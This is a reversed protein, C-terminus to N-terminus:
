TLRPTARGNMAPILLIGPVEVLVGKVSIPVKPWDTAPTLVETGRETVLVTDGMMAAGVSPHWFVPVGAFLRFESTPMLSVPGCEYEVVDAQDALRWADGAGCKEYIRKVRNWVEFFEWGAQSFFMGTAQVLAAREYDQLLDAPPDGFSFTRAAGVHLGQYRGVVVLTGYKNVPQGSFAWHRFRRGRGDGMVQLREPVVEHKLLRHSIEGAIEAESRGPVLGRATAELAHAVLRGATRMRGVDYASLPLRMAQVHLGVEVALPHVWDSAVRRGRCLDALIVSRPESWPREKLQFGLGAVEHEFILPSEVNNCVVVRADPTVFLAPRSTCSSSRISSGGVTLWAYNVPNQLLLASYGEKRLFEAILSHRRAVETVRELDVTALETSSLPVSQELTALTM